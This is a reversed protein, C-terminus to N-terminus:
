EVNYDGFGDVHLIQGANQSQIIDPINTLNFFMKLIDLTEKPVEFAALCWIDNESQVSFYWPDGPKIVADLARNMLTLSVRELKQNKVIESEDLKLVFKLTGGCEVVSMGYFKVMAAQLKCVDLVFNNNANLEFTVENAGHMFVHKHVIHKPEGILELVNNNLVQRAKKVSNPCLIPTVRKNQFITKFNGAMKKYIMTYSDRSLGVKDCMGQADTATFANKVNQLQEQMMADTVFTFKSHSLTSRFMDKSM